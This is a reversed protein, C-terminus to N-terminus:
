KKAKSGPQKRQRSASLGELKKNLAVKAGEHQYASTKAPKPALHNRRATNSADAGCGHVEAQMHEFCFKMKCLKCVNGMLVISKKCCHYACVKSSAVAADLVAEERAEQAISSASKPAM